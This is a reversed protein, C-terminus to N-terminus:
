DFTPSQPVTFGADAWEQVEGEDMYQGFEGLSAYNWFSIPFKGLGFSQNKEIIRRLNDPAPPGAAATVSIFLLISAELVM